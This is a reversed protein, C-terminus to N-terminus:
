DNDRFLGWPFNFIFKKNYQLKIREKLKSNSIMRKRKTKGTVMTPTAVHYKRFRVINVFRVSQCYDPRSTTSPFMWVPPFVFGVTERSVLFLHM